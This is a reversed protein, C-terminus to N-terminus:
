KGLTENQLYTKYIQEFSRLFILLFERNQMKENQLYM